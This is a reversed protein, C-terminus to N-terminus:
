ALYAYYFDDYLLALLSFAGTQRKTKVQLRPGMVYQMKLYM